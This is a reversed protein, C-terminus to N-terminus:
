PKRLDCPPVEHWGSTARQTGVSFRAPDLGATANKSPVHRRLAALPTGGSTQRSSVPLPRRCWRAGHHAEEAADVDEGRDDQEDEGREAASGALPAAALRGPLRADRDRDERQPIERTADPAVSQVHHEDERRPAALVAVIRRGLLHRAQRPGLQPDLDPE